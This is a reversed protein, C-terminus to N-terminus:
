LKANEDEKGSLVEELKGMLSNLTDRKKRFELAEKTNACNAICLPNTKGRFDKKGLIIEGGCKTCKSVKGIVLEM